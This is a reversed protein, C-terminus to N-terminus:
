LGAAAPADLMERVKRLLATPTFPKQLFAVGPDLVGHRVIADDTYGSAYLVRIGPHELQVLRALEPGSMSPMVVDSLLLHIPERHARLIRLAEDGHSAELVRYGYRELVACAVSRVEPQDETLLITETGALGDTAAVAVPQREGQSAKPFYVKFTTGKGPESNVWISGGSQTVIGYVTSLGLGTGEGRRKTTFFPEFIRARTEADMGVGTDSVALMVHPGPSSGGHKTVYTDDLNINTTEITLRGGGPMADRANIALNLIVQELQGPDASVRDLSQDLATVLTIHEGILRQLLSDARTVVKNLDLVQPQLIQKRSFALLQQTLSAASEGARRMQEVDVRAPHGPELEDLVLNSYGLIATLLNNFDHAVGGALRGVAEMKRSQELQEELARRAEEMKTRTELDRVLRQQASQIQGGMIDFARTLRGIEDRRSSGVRRTYDGMAIAEAAHTLATLPTTVQSAFLAVLIVACWVLVGAILLISRLFTKAPAVVADRPLEVWVRWPTGTVEGIAGIRSGAEEPEGVYSGRAATDVPPPPVLRTLDTWVRDGVSGVLVVAGGGVLRNLMESTPSMSVPRRLALYGLPPAGASGPVPELTESFVERTRTELLRVGQVRPPPETPAMDSAEDPTAIVLLPDGAASWLALVQRGPTDLTALCARVNVDTQDAPNQLYRALQPDRAVRRLEALRQRASQALLTALQDAAGQAREAGASVLTREVERHAAWVFVALVGAILSSVLLPLRWRLSHRASPPADGSQPRLQSM